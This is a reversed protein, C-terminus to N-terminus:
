RPALWVPSPSAAPVGAVGVSPWPPEGDHGSGGGRAGDRGSRGPGRGGEGDLADAGGVAADLHQVPHVEVHRGTRDEGEETGVAGALGGQEAHHAALKAGGVALHHDAVGRGAPGGGLLQGPGAETRDGLSPADEGVQRDLLVEADPRVLTAEVQLRDLLPGVLREGPQGLAAPLQGAGHGAALLLHQGDRPRQDRVGLHQQEVLQRHAEGRQDHRLEVLQDPVQRPPPHGDQQHLLEHGGGQRHRRPRGDHQM